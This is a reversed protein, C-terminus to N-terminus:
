RRTGGCPLDFNLENSPGGESYQPRLQVLRSRVQFLEGRLHQGLDALSGPRPLGHLARPEAVPRCVPLRSVRRRHWFPTRIETANTFTYLLFFFGFHKCDILFTLVIIVTSLVSPSPRTTTNTGASYLRRPRTVPLYLVSTRLPELDVCVHATECSGTEGRLSGDVGWRGGEKVQPLRECSRSPAGAWLRDALRQSGRLVSYLCVSTM